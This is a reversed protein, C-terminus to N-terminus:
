KKPRPNSLEPNTLFGEDTLSELLAKLDARQQSTLRFGSVFSSKNPSKSGDGAYPGETIISGGRAYHDLVDDLTPLSCDHMQPARVAVNRM